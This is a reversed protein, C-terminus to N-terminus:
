NQNTSSDETPSPPTTHTQSSRELRETEMENVANTVANDVVDSDVENIRLLPADDQITLTQIPESKYFIGWNNDKLVSLIIDILKMKREEEKRKLSRCSELETEAYLAKIKELFKRGDSIIYVTDLETKIGQGM